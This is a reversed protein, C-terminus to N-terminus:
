PTAKLVLKRELSATEGQIKAGLSLQWRGAMTLNTKFRYIGQEQSPIQEITEAMSAMGDPAMDIRKAFIVADPVPKGTKKNLLRVAVIAGEGKKVDSQVLQFEYDKIDAYAATLGGSLVGVTAVVCALNSGLTKM